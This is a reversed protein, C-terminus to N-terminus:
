YNLIPIKGGFMQEKIYIYIMNDLAIIKYCPLSGHLDFNEILCYKQPQASPLLNKPSKCIVRFTNLSNPPRYIEFFNNESYVGSTM